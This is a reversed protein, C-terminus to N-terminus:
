GSFSWHGDNILNVLIHLDGEAIKKIKGSNIEKYSTIVQAFHLSCEYKHGTAYLEAGSDTQMFTMRSWPNRHVNKGNEVRKKMQPLTIKRSHPAPIQANRYRTIFAGFWERWQAEDMNSCTTIVRKFRQLTDNDIEGPFNQPLLDPDAYRREEPLQEALFEAFDIFLENYSPARMGISFTMCEGEAIGHHPVGPPLYLMDGPELLWEHTPSFQKLLKLETDQRFERPVSPDTSIKWRRKGMGQLLFVDYNDVHAGVSGQDVAYSIMIDDIRWSPLFRFYALLEAVDNDWKDVDQVLLTWHSKPLTSFDQENFPGTRLIWKDSKKNHLVLRSSALEECALGALDNPTLPATFHSFAGRVLLPQKQWFNHLFRQSPMGLPAHNGAHIEIELAM